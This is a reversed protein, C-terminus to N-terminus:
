SVRAFCAVFSLVLVSHRQSSGQLMDAIAIMTENDTTSNRNLTRSYEGTVTETKLGPSPARRCLVVTQQGAICWSV